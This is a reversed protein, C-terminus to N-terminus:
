PQKIAEAALLEPSLLPQLLRGGPQIWGPRSLDPVALVSQGALWFRPAVEPLAHEAILEALRDRRRDDPTVILVRAHRRGTVKRLQDSRFLFTYATIKEQWRRSGRETGRDAELFGVLVRPGVRYRFWADPRLVKPPRLRGLDIQAAPGDRWVELRHDPYRRSALETWIRFEQVALTHGLFLHNRPGYRGALVRPNGALGRDRLVKAGARTLVYLNPASGYVVAAENASGPDALAARPVPVVDVLGADYLARLARQVSKPSPDALAALQRSSLIGYDAIYRLLDRKHGTLSLPREPPERQYRRRRKLPEPSATM